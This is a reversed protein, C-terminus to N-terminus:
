HGEYECRADHTEFVTIRELGPLAPLLHQWLWGAMIESTPNELGKVENLCHHDLQAFLPAWADHLRQYDIFWGTEENVQGSVAVEIRYSHGHMRACKHGPPVKPLWHAAEFRFEQVLRVKM